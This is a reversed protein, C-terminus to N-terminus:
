SSGPAFARVVTGIYNTRRVLTRDPAGNNRGAVVWGRATKAVLTHAVPRGSDGFFVVTMGPRLDDMEMAEVVLVTRDQYVPLMSGGRGILVECNTRGAAVREAIRWADRAPVVEAAPTLAASARVSDASALAVLGALLLKGGAFWTVFPKRFLM